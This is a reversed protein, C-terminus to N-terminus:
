PTEKASNIPQSASADQFASMAVSVADPKRYPNHKLFRDRVPEDLGIHAMVAEAGSQWALALAEDFDSVVRDHNASGEPAMAPFKRLTSKALESM